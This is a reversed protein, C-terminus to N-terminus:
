PQDGGVRCGAPAAERESFHGPCPKAQEPVPSLGLMAIRLLPLTASRVELRQNPAKAVRVQAASPQVVWSERYL